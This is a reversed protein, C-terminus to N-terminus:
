PWIEEGGEVNSVAPNKPVANCRYGHKNLYDKRATLIEQASLEGINSLAKLDTVRKGMLDGLYNVKSRKLSNYTRTCLGLREIPTSEIGDYNAHVTCAVSNVDKLIMKEADEGYTDSLMERVDAQSGSYVGVLQKIPVSARFKKNDARGAILVLWIKDEQM